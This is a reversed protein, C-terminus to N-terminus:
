IVGLHTLQIGVKNAGWSFRKIHAAILNVLLVIGVTYGGPLPLVPKFGGPRWGFFDFWVIFSRFWRAQAAYLGEEVQALTGLFVLLVSFALCVVTLRLSTFFKWIPRDM